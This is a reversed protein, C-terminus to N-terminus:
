SPWVRPSSCRTGDATIKIKGTLNLMRINSNHHINLKKVPMTNWSGKLSLLTFSHQSHAHWALKHCLIVTNKKKQLRMATHPSHDDESGSWKVRLLFFFACFVRQILPQTSGIDHRSEPNYYIINTVWLNEKTLTMTIVCLSFNLYGFEADGEIPILNAFMWIIIQIADDSSAPIKALHHM